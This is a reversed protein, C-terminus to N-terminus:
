AGSAEFTGKPRAAPARRTDRWRKWALVTVHVVRSVAQRDDTPRCRWGPCQRYRRKESTDIGRGQRRVRAHLVQAGVGRGGTRRRCLTSSTSRRASGTASRRRRTASRMSCSGRPRSSCSSVRSGARTSSTSAEAQVAAKGGVESAAHARIPLLGLPLHRIELKAVLRNALAVSRDRTGRTQVHRLQGYGGTFYGSVAAGRLEGV